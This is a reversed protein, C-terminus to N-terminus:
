CLLHASSAASNLLSQLLGVIQLPPSPKGHTPLYLTHHLSTLLFTVPGQGPRGEQSSGVLQMGPLWTRCPARSGRLTLLEPGSAFTLPRQLCHFFRSQPGAGVVGAGLLPEFSLNPPSKPFLFLLQFLVFIFVLYIFLTM